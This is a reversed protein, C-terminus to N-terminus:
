AALFTYVLFYAIASGVLPRAFDTLASEHPNQMLTFVSGAVQVTVARMATTFLTEYLPKRSRTNWQCQSYAGAAAIYFTANPGILILSAFDIAYGVSLTSVGVTFPFAITMRGATLSLGMLSLFLLPESFSVNLLHLFLLAAGTAVVAKVFRQAPLPLQKM